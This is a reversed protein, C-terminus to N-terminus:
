GRPPREQLHAYGTMDHDDNLSSEFNFGNWQVVAGAKGDRDIGVYWHGRKPFGIVILGGADHPQIPYAKM